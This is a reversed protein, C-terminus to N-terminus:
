GGPRGGIPGAHRLSGGPRRRSCGLRGCGIPLRPFGFVPGRGGIWPTRRGPGALRDVSRGGVGAARDGAGRVARGGAPVSKREGGGLAGGRVGCSRAAGDGRRCEAGRAARSAARLRHPAGRDDAAPAAVDHVPAAGRAGAARGASRARGCRVRRCRAGAGRGQHGPGGGGALSGSRSGAADGALLAAGSWPGDGQGVVPAAVSVRGDGGLASRLHRDHRHAGCARGAADCGRAVHRGGVYPREVRCRRAGVGAGPAMGRGATWRHGGALHAGRCVRRGGPAQRVDPHHGAESGQAPARSRRPCPCVDRSRSGAAAPPRRRVKAM